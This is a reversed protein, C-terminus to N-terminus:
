FFNKIKNEKMRKKKEKKKKKEIMGKISWPTRVVKAELCLNESM